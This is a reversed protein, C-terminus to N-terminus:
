EEEALYYLRLIKLTEYDVRGGLQEFVPKLALTGLADFARAAQERLDLPVAAALALLDEGRRLKRGAAQFRALHDLITGLTVAYRQMLAAISEGAQYAEGVLMYRRGSDSKDREPADEGGPKSKEPLSHAQAFTQILELFATGYRQRKVLGVGNMRLLSDESQPLYAAMELLTKDSFIVYPPVGAEDALEKRRARLQALLANNVELAPELAKAGREREQAASELALGHIPSRKRLAEVALPTLKLSRFEGDQSLYGM